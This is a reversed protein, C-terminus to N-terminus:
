YTEGSKHEPFHGVVFFRGLEMHSLCSEHIGGKNVWSLALCLGELSGNMMAYILLQVAQGWQDILALHKDVLSQNLKNVEEM